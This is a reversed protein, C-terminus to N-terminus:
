SFVAATSELAFFSYPPSLLKVSNIYILKMNFNFIFIIIM